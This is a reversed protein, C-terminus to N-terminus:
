VVEAKGDVEFHSTPFRDYAHQQRDLVKSPLFAPDFAKWDLYPSGATYCTCQWFAQKQRERQGNQARHPNSKFPVAPEAAESEAQSSQSNPMSGQRELERIRDQADVLEQTQHPQLQKLVFLAFQALEKM